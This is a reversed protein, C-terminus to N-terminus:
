RGALGVVPQFQSLLTFGCVSGTRQLAQNPRVRRILLCAPQVLSPATLQFRRRRVCGSRPAALPRAGPRGPPGRVGPGRVGTM